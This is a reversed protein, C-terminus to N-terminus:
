PLLEGPFSARKLSAYCPVFIFCRTVLVFYFGRDTNAGGIPAAVSDSLIVEETKNCKTVFRISKDLFIPPLGQNM